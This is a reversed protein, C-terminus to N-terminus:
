KKLRIESFLSKKLKFFLGFAGLLLGGIFSPEPVTEPEIIRISLPLRVNAIAYPYNFGISLPPSGLDEDILQVRGNGNRNVDALFADALGDLIPSLGSEKTVSVPNTFVTDSDDDNNTTVGRDFAAYKPSYGFNLIKVTGFSLFEEVAKPNATYIREEINSSPSGLWNTGLIDSGLNWTQRFDEGSKVGFGYGLNSLSLGNNNIYKSFNSFGNIGNLTATRTATNGTEPSGNRGIAYYPAISGPPANLTIEPHGADFANPDIANLLAVYGQNNDPDGFFNLSDTYALPRAEILQLRDYNFSAAQVPISFIVALNTSAVGSLLTIISLKM